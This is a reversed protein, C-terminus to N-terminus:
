GQQRGHLEEQPRRNVLLSGRALLSSYRLRCPPMGAACYVICGAFSRVRHSTHRAPCPAGSAERPTLPPQGQRSTLPVSLPPAYAVVKAPPADVAGGVPAIQQLEVKRADRRDSRSPHFALTRLGDLAHDREDRAADVLRSALPTLRKSMPRRRSQSLGGKDAPTKGGHADPWQSARPLDTARRWIGGQLGRTRSRTRAGATPARHLWSAM